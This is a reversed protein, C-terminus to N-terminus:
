EMEVNCYGSFASGPVFFFFLFSFSYLVVWTRISFHPLVNRVWLRLLFKPVWVQHVHWPVSVPVMDESWWGILNLFWGGLDCCPCFTAANHFSSKNDVTVFVIFQWGKAFNSVWYCNGSWPFGPYGSLLVGVTVEYWSTGGNGICAENCSLVPPRFRLGFAILM